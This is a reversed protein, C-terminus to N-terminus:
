NAFEGWVKNRGDTGDEYVTVVQGDKMYFLLNRGSDFDVRQRAGQAWDDISQTGTPKGFEPHQSVFTAIEPRLDSPSSGSGCGMLSSLTLCFVILTVVLCHIKNKFTM